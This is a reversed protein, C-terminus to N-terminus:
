EHRLTRMPDIKTASRAPVYSALFAVAVLVSSVLVLTLLDHAKVGYLFDALLPTAVFSGVVGIAVGVGSLVMAQRFVLGMVQGPQAGLAMRLGLEHRREGVSYSIVGYIGIVALTLAIAAFLEFLQSIFRWPTASESVAQEVTTIGFVASDPALESITRRVDDIAAKSASRTRLVFSKHIRTETWGSHVRVPLQRYDVYAEPQPDITLSFQHVNGVVGVIERPKEDPSDDFRITRGIPDDNKWFKRAMAENIVVVWASSQTDQEAVGRGRLVPIGMIPFYDSNVSQRLVNAPAVQGGFNFGPSAYQPTELLPLWDVLAANEVGPLSRARELVQRCFDGVPPLISSFGTADETSSDMYKLGTLRVEATVLHAPNFGATTRMIRIVTNIMLGACTLLVLALAVEGVVLTNRTRPRSITATTRGSERLFRNADSRVARYAPVLGFAIGTLVCTGFTFLLVRGDVLVSLERPLWEPAWVSFVKVGLFAAVLGAMGGIMSLLISESLVQGVIRGKNAGLAVRVGIEKRRGDGRVLSLNAVNACAILLVLAVIGFLTYYVQGWNGFLRKQLPEVRVGLDKYAEPFAQALRRTTVEMAAQAQQISVGRKLKGVAIFWRVDDIGSNAPDPMGGFEYVEPTGTGLLDFGPELVGVITGSFTDVFIKQGLVNPNGSFHRKWFDYSILVGFSGKQESLDDTPITGIFTKVGLLPLLRASMHQVGVREGSGASSMAVMDAHSVFELNEFVQNDARWHSVDTSSVPWSWKPEKLNINSVSVLREQDPYPLPRLLVGNIVSFVATTAGIGIALTLVAVVTFGASKRLGRVAYCLDQGLAEIWGAM